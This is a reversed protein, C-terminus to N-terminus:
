PGRVDYVTITRATALVGGSRIADWTAPGIGADKPRAIIVADGSRLYDQLALQWRQNDVRPVRRGDKGRVDMDPGYTRGTVDVWDPCGHGLSRDLADLGILAMPSDSMVCRTGTVAAALQEPPLPSPPRSPKYWLAKATGVVVVVVVAAGIAATARLILPRTEPRPVSVATAGTALCLAAAPTLYDLYFVFGSPAALLVAASTLLLALPLRVIPVRWAAIVLLAVATLLMADLLYATPWSMGVPLRQLLVVARFPNAQERGLQESIVM